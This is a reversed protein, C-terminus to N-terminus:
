VELDKHEPSHQHYMYGSLAQEIIVIGELIEALSVFNQM